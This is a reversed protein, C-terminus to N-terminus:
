VTVCRLGKWRGALGIQRFCDKHFHIEAIRKSRVNTKPIEELVQLRMAEGVPVAKECEGCNRNM